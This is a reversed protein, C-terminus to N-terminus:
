AYIRLVRGASEAGAEVARLCRTRAGKRETNIYSELAYKAIFFLFIYLAKHTVAQEARMSPVVDQLSKRVM